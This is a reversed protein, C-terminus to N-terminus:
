GPKFLPPLDLLLRAIGTFLVLFELRGFFMGLMETWLVTAPADVATIGCSLGVTGLASAFEFLSQGLPYGHACLVLTGAVLSGLYLFFFLSIPRLQADTLFRREEGIWIAPSTVAQRPLLLRRLEEIVGLVLAAIRFQKLGGATSGTGGGIVMLVIIVLWGFDPWHGYDVTAFGTTTLASTAEFVATWVPTPSTGATVAFFLMGAALPLTVALLQLEANRLVPRFHGRWLAYAILFNLNGLLMLVVVVAEVGGNGWAGISGARTSFGGTSLATFAHNVADFWEMGVLWLASGGALAYGLYISLVLRASRRVQPVLQEARGEASSLGTGAPGALASLMLIALGAGGAFQLLSRFFLLLSSTRAVDVISLGTTTWGSTSEFLSLTLDLGGTLWFP